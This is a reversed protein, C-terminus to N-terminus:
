GNVGIAGLTKFTLTFLITQDGNDGNIFTYRRSLNLNAIVCENQWTVNGGLAVWKTGNTTQTVPTFQVNSLNRQAYGSLSWRGFSTSAGLTVEDRPLFFGPSIQAPIRFNSDDYYYPNTSSHIYGASVRLLKVGTSVLGDAFSIAGRDHDYRGRATFDLWSAPVFSLREVIDSAHRELGSLPQLARDDIHARFSEGVLGDLYMGNGFTWNGHVGINARAGSDQRDIGDFRNIQFLTTDNFNYELSDENPLLNNASEPAIPAALLQVIPTITQSGGDRQLRVLPDEVRVEATPLAQGTLKHDMAYYDPILKLGNANYVESQLNGTFTWKSGLPGFTPRDWNLVFGGRQDTAGNPRIVDFDETSVHLTGGLDDKPLQLDYIYRPLVYPLDSDTVETNNIGQFALADLRAYSGSSFGEVYLTSGLVDAGYGPIRYDRLYNASTALNIDAGYHWHDNWVWDTHLFIYGELSDERNEPTAFRQSGTTPTSSDYAIAGQVRLVGNNFRRRYEAKLQPGSRTAFLPILTVDSSPGFVYYYPLTVFTGLYDDSFAIDPILFGSQRKVSPDSMSFYPLYFVPVGLVDMYMDQYEIRKHELDQTADYARLQWLPKEEPHQACVNCSTYIVRSLDNVKGEYRRVGNAALRGNEALLGRMGKIVGEKMGQTLEAYDGFMVEGDPQTISVHGHAAAVNTNRDFTVRDAHLVNGNQWAEVHGSATILGHDRDYAVNDAQFTVPANRDGSSSGGGQGALRALQASAPTAMGAMGLLLVALLLRRTHAMRVM